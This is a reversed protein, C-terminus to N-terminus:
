LREPCALCAARLGCSLLLGTRARSVGLTLVLRGKSEEEEPPQKERGVEGGPRSTGIGRRLSCGALRQTRASVWQSCWWGGWGKGMPMTGWRQTLDLNRTPGSM